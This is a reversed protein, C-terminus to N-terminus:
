EELIDIIRDIFDGEYPLGIFALIGNIAIAPVSMVRYRDAIDPNEYAEVMDSIINRNGNIYSEYAVMNALLVAYPCYPCAPTVIVEIHVPKKISRIKRKSEPELGTEKESIRIVTEVFSRLEEGSPIGLYRVHGEALVVTPARNVKYLTAVSRDRNLWYLKYSFLKEGNVGPSAEVFRDLLKRTEVCYYCKDEIFLLAEVKSKMDKLAERLAEFTEPDLEGGPVMPHETDLPTIEHSM